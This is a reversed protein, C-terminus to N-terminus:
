WLGQCTCFAIKVKNDPHLAVHWYNSNLDLTLCWKAKTLTDLTSNIRPLLFCDEKTVNLKRNDVFFHLDGNKECVLM